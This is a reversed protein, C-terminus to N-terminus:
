WSLWLILMMLIDIVVDGIVEDLSLVVRLGDGQLSAMTIFIVLAASLNV